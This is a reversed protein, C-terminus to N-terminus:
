PVLLESATVVVRHSELDVKPHAGESSVTDSGHRNLGGRAAAALQAEVTPHTHERLPLEARLPADLIFACPEKKTNGCDQGREWRRLRRGVLLRIMRLGEHILESPKGFEM